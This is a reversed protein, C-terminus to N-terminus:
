DANAANNEDLDKFMVISVTKFGRAHFFAHAEVNNVGSELFLRQIGQSRMDAAVWDLFRRGIGLGRFGPIVILDDLSAYARSAEQAQDISVFAIGALAGEVQAMAIRSHPSSSRDGLSSRVQQRLKEPLDRCWRGPADARNGQLESHSIYSPQVHALFLAVIANEYAPEQCWSFTPQPPLQNGPDNPVLPAGPTTSMHNKAFKTPLEMKLRFNSYEFISDM